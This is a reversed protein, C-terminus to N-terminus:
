EGSRSIISRLSPFKALKAMKLNLKESKDNLREENFINM